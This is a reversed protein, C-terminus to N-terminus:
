AQGRHAVSCSTRREQELHIILIWPSGEQPNPPRRGAQSYTMGLLARKGARERRRERVLVLNGKSVMRGENGLNQQPQGNEFGLESVRWTPVHALIPWDRFVWWGPWLLPSYLYLPSPSEPFFTPTETRISSRSVGWSWRKSCPYLQVIPFFLARCDDCLCFTDYFFSVRSM